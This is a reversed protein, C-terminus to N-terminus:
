TDSRKEETNVARIRSLLICRRQDGEAKTKLLIVASEQGKYHIFEGEMEMPPLQKGKRYMHTNLCVIVKDGKVFNM